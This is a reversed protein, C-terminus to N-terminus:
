GARRGAMWAQTEARIYEDAEAGSRFQSRGPAGGVPVPLLSVAEAHLKQLHSPPDNASHPGSTPVVVGNLPDDTRPTTLALVGGIDGAAADRQTLPALGWRREITKLISTHDLPTAGSPVRFVTGAAILPSVLVTPVRVGFRKFDFSVPPSSDPPTAGLPPPVHDYCGGHEDYTVILLTQNWAPGSRLANYVDHILKEGLAVDYNPHQSNGTTGWSPELFSFAALKGQAAAAQFDAFLGFHTNAANLTDPFNYRTYPQQDYGYITWSVNASALAGFISKVNYTPPPANSPDSVSGLSTAALAFARNPMTESPVSAFWHDCVAYGRALGSLVPLMEPTFVGMINTSVTGAVGIHQPTGMTAAFDALFGKCTAVPPLPPPDTGFLQKNTHVYGEGPNAGPMYYAYRQSSQIRFVTVATGNADLNNETGTLGEFPQGAPSTNNTDAYLFGLMHDFSRNELMLVVIHQIQELM